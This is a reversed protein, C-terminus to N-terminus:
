KSAIIFHVTTKSQHHKNKLCDFFANKTMNFSLEGIYEKFGSMRDFRAVWSKMVEASAPGNFNLEQDFQNQEHIVTLGSGLMFSRLKSGMKFDYLRNRYAYNYYSKFTSEVAPSLPEHGFLDSMETIAIWGGPKLLTLWNKLIEGFDPFYAAVFSSWIGDASPLAGSHIASLDM